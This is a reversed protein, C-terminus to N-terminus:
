TKLYWARARALVMGKSPANQNPALARPVVVGFVLVVVVDDDDDVVVAVLVIVFAFAFVCAVVVVVPRHGPADGAKRLM